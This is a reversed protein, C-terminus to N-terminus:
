GLIDFDFQRLFVDPVDDGIVGGGEEALRALEATERRTRDDFIRSDDEDDTTATTEGIGSARLQAALQTMDAVRGAVTNLIDQLSGRARQDTSFISSEFNEQLGELRAERTGALNSLERGGARSLRERQQGGVGSGAFGSAARGQRISQAIGLLGTRIGTAGVGFKRTAESRGLGLVDSAQGTEFSRADRIDQLAAFLPGGESTDIPTFFEAADGVGFRDAIGQADLGAIEGIESGPGFLGLLDNVNSPIDLTPPLTPTVDETFENDRAQVGVESM